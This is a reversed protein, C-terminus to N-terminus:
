PIKISLLAFTVKNFDKKFPKTRYSVFISIAQRFAPTILSTDSKFPLAKLWIVVTIRIV